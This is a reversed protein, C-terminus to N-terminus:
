NMRKKKVCKHLCLKGQYIAIELHIIYISSCLVQRVFSCSSILWWKTKIRLAANIAANLDFHAGFSKLFTLFLVLEDLRPDTKTERFFYFHLKMTIYHNTQEKTTFM